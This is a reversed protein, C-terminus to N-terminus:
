SLGGKDPWAQQRKGTISGTLRGNFNHIERLKSSELNM